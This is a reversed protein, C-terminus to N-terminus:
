VPDSLVLKGEELLMLISVATMPKTMSAMRFLTDTRMPKNSELDMSGHAQFHVLKGKRMVLTVAGAFDKADLHAQIVGHIRKLRDASFGAEEPRSTPLSAALSQLVLLASLTPALFLKATGSM